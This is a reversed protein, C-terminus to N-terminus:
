KRKRVVRKKEKGCFLNYFYGILFGAVAGDLFAWLGGIIGGVFSPVFGIYLSSMVSIVSSGWGTIGVWGLFLMFVAWTIGISLALAFVNCRSM